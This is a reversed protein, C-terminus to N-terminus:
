GEGRNEQTNARGEEPLLRRRFYRINLRYWVFYLIVVCILMMGLCGSLKRGGYLQSMVPDLPLYFVEFILLGKIFHFLDEGGSERAKFFLVMNAAAAALLCAVYVMTPIAYYAGVLEVDMLIRFDEGYATVSILATTLALWPRVVVYFRYWKMGPCTGMEMENM